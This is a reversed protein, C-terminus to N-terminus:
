SFCMDLLGCSQTSQGWISVLHVLQLQYVFGKVGDQFVQRTIPECGYSMFVLLRLVQACINKMECSRGAPRVNRLLKGFIRTGTEAELWECQRPGIEFESWERGERVDYLAGAPPSWADEDSDYDLNELEGGFQSVMLKAAANLTGKFFVPSPDRINVRISQM